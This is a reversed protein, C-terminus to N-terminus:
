GFLVMLILNVPLRSQAKIISTDIRQGHLNTL